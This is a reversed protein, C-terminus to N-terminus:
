IVSDLVSDALRGSKISIDLHLTGVTPIRLDVGDCVGIVLIVM